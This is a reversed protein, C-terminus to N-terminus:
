GRDDGRADNSPILALRRRAEEVMRLWGEVTGMSPEVEFDIQERLKEELAELMLDALEYVNPQEPM